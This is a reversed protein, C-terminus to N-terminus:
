SIRSGAAPSAAFAAQQTGGAGATATAAAATGEGSSVPAICVNIINAGSKMVM